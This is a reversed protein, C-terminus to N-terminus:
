VSVTVTTSGALSLTRRTRRRASVAVGAWVLATIFDYVRTGKPNQLRGATMAARMGFAAIGWNRMVFLAEPTAPNKINEAFHAETNFVTQFVFFVGGLVEFIDLPTLGIYPM